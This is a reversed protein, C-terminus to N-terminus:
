SAEPRFTTLDVTQQKGDTGRKIIICLYKEDLMIAPVEERNCVETCGNEDKRRAETSGGAAAVKPKQEDM